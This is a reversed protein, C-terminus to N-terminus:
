NLVKSLITEINNYEWYPIRILKWGHEKAYEDKLGDHYKNIEFQKNAWEEGKGAFDTPEFHQIGDFEIWIKLSPIIFDPRLLNGGIGKLDKFYGEDHIYDIHKNDLFVKICEEGYTLDCKSCRRGQQFKNWELLFIHGKPCEFILKEHANIYKNSLLKYGFSEVYIRISDITISYKGGKCYPCIKKRKNSTFFTINTSFIHNNECMVTIITKQKEVDYTKSIFKYNYKEVLLKIYEDSYAVGGNCYPCRTPSKSKNGKFNKFSVEYPPHGENCQIMIRSNLGKDTIMSIFKYDESEVYQKITEEFWTKKM